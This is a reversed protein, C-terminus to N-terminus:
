WFKKDMLDWNRPDLDAKEKQEKQIKEQREQRTELADCESGTQQLVIQAPFKSSAIAFLRCGRPAKPDYTSFYHICKMCSTAM